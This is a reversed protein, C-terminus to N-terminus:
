KVVIVGQHLQCHSNPVFCRHRHERLVEDERRELVRTRSAMWFLCTIDLTHVRPAKRIANIIHAMSNTAGDLLMSMRITRDYEVGYIYAGKMWRWNDMLLPSAM